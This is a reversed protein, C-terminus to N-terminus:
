TSLLRNFFSRYRQLALRLEETGADQGGSWQQELRDRETAFSEALRQMVEAVLSDADQVARKPEDVFAVQIAQWRSLYGDADSVLPPGAVEEDGQDAAPEPTGADQEGRDVLDSTRLQGEGAEPRSAAPSGTTSEDDDGAAAAPASEASEPDPSPAPSGMAADASGSDNATRDQSTEPNSETM